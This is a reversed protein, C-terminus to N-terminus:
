FIVLPRGYSTALGNKNMAPKVSSVFYECLLVYFNHRIYIVLHYLLVDCILYEESQFYTMCINDVGSSMWRQLNNYLHYTTVDM